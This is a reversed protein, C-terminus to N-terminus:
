WQNQENCRSTSLRRLTRGAIPLQNRVVIVAPLNTKPPPCQAGDFPELRSIPNPKAEEDTGPFSTRETLAARNQGPRHRLRTFKSHGCFAASGRRPGSSESSTLCPSSNSEEFTRSAPSRSQCARLHGFAETGNCVVYPFGKRVDALAAWREAMCNALRFCRRSSWPGVNWEARARGHNVCM